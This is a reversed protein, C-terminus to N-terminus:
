RLGEFDCAVALNRSSNMTVAFVPRVPRKVEFYFQRSSRVCAVHETRVSVLERRDQNFQSVLRSALLSGSLRALVTRGVPKMVLGTSVLHGHQCSVHHSVGDYFGRLEDM